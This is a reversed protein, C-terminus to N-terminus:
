EQSKALTTLSNLWECDGQKNDAASSLREHYEWSVICNVALHLFDSQAM